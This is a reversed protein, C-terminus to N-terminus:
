IATKYKDLNETRWHITEKLGENLSYRPEWKTLSRIKDNAGLLRNVESREPRLRQEDSIIKAHPNILDILLNTLELMSIERQTGINIEEGIAKESQAIHIFGNVTDKVYNFDRTPTLNSLKIETKGSLM